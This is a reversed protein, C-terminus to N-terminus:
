KEDVMFTDVLNLTSKFIKEVELEARAIEVNKDASSKCRM